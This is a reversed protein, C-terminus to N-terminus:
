QSGDTDGQQTMFDIFRQVAASRSRKAHQVLEFARPSVFDPTRLHVLEGRQLMGAAALRSTVTVGLGSRVARLLAGTTGFVARIRFTDLTLDRDSLARELAQRTGSGQERVIWPLRCLDDLDWCETHHAYAPDAVVILEDQLYPIYTLDPSLSRGGVVGVDLEGAQVLANISQSDAVHLHLDVEPYRRVFRAMCDPLVYEGPITSGGLLITGVIRQELAWIASEAEAVLSHITRTYEYLIRAAATPLICRPLRDFLRTGLHHELEAIHASVTPQTLCLVAAAKSFSQETYVRSFVELRRSDM